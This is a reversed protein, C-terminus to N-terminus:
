GIEVVAWRGAPTREYIVSQRNVVEGAQCYGWVRIVYTGDGSYTAERDRVGPSGIVKTVKNAYMGVSLQDYEAGTVTENPCTADPDDAAHAPVAVFAAAVLALTAITKNM